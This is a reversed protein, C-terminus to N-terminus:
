FNELTCANWTKLTFISRMELLNHVNNILVKYDLLIVDVQFSDLNSMAFLYSDDSKKAFM